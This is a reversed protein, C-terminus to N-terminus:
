IQALPFNVGGVCVCVCVAVPHMEFLRFHRVRWEEGKGAGVICPLAIVTIGFSSIVALACGPFVQWSGVSIASM